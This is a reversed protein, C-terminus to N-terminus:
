ATDYQINCCVFAFPKCWKILVDGGREDHLTMCLCLDLLM